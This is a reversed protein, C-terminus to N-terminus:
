KSALLSTSLGAVPLYTPHLQSWSGLRAVGHVNASTQFINQNGGARRTVQWGWLQGQQLSFTRLNQEM